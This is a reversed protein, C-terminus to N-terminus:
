CCRRLQARKRIVVLVILPHECLHSFQALTLVLRPRAMSRVAEAATGQNRGHPSLPTRSPHMRTLSRPMEPLRLCHVTTMIHLVTMWYENWVPPWGALLVIASFSLRKTFWALPIHSLGVNLPHQSM